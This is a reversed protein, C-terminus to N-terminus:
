FNSLSNDHDLGSVNEYNNQGGNIMQPTHHPNERIFNKEAVRGVNEKKRLARSNIKKRRPELRNKKRNQVM